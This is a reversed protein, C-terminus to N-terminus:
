EGKTIDFNRIILNDTEIYEDKPEIIFGNEQGYAIASLTALLDNKSEMPLQDGRITMESGMQKELYDKMMEKSYPNFAEKEQAKIAAARDEESLEVIDNSVSKRIFTQKRPFRISKLDLFENRELSFLANMEEPLDDKMDLTEMEEIIYRITRDISGRIDAERNRIVRARGIAIQIYLNMKHKIDRLLRDYDGILFRQTQELMDLIRGEAEAEDIDEEDMCGSIMLAFHDQNRKMEELQRRIFTRYIHINQQKTLRAYEKIFSGECYELLNETLSEFTEENVMREIINRIYTALKKLSKSLQKANRYVPKLANVYPNKSWQETNRLTNYINFVYSSFEEKEPKKLAQLFEALMVGQETMIIHKEYTADDSDEELWGVDKACFKRIIKGAAVTYNADGNEEEDEDTYDVENALLYSAVADRVRTRPIRYTIERDYEDYIVQLCDSYIRNKSGSGLFNFFSEPIVDFLNIM